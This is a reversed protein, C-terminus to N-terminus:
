RDVRRRKMATMLHGELLAASAAWSHHDVISQRLARVEEPPSDPTELLRILEASITHPNELPMAIRTLLSSDPPIDLTLRVSTIALTRRGCALYEYLKLGSDGAQDTRTTDSHICIDAANIYCPVDAHPVSGVFWCVDQVELATALAESPGRTVGDGVFAFRGQPVKARVRPIASIINELGHHPYFSGVFVAIKAEPPWGLRRRCEDRPLPRFLDTDVGNPVVATRDEPAGARRRYSRRLEATVVVLLDTKQINWRQVADLLGARLSNTDRTRVEDGPLGNIEIAHRAGVCRAIWRPVCTYAIEREYIWDPRFRKAAKWLAPIFAVRAHIGRYFPTAPVPVCHIPIRTPLPYRAPSIAVIEVEHGLRALNEATEMVHITPAFPRSLDAACVYLIRM